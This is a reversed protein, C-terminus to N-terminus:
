DNEAVNGHQVVAYRTFIREVKSGSIGTEGNKELVNVLCGHISQDTRENLEESSLPM